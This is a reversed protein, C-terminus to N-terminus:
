KKIEIIGGGDIFVLYEKNDVSIIQYIRFNVRTSEVLKIRNSMKYPQEAENAEKCSFLTFFFLVLLSTKM